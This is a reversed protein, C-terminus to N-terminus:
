AVGQRNGRDQEERVWPAIENNVIACAVHSHPSDQWLLSFVPLSHHGVLAASQTTGLAVVTDGSTLVEARVEIAPGEEQPGVM